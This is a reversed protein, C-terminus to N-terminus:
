IQDLLKALEERADDIKEKREKRWSLIRSVESSLEQIEREVSDSAPGGRVKRSEVSRDPDLVRSLEEETIKLPRGTVEMAVEEVKRKLDSTDNWRTGEKVVTAVVSHATRFPLGGRTVLLDALDTAWLGGERAARRLAEENIKASSIAGRTVSIMAKVTDLGRWLHVTAEQLDRNYSLPLSKCISMAAVLSSLVSSARARVLEAVDPNRKQPMISSTSSFADGLSLFGFEHTSWLVIEEAIRSLSIAVSSLCFLAEVLFDRSSVADMSNRFAESFGLLRATMEPRIPLSTTAVAAAGLPCIDVRRYCDVLRLIDRLIIEAHALLHHALTTPQARQLHTYAPIVTSRHKDSLDLLLSELECLRGTIDLIDERLVIRLCTAVEDNRSRGTHIRGGIEEGLRSILESEILLHIDEYGESFLEDLKSSIQDLEKVIKKAHGRSILGQKFLMFVHVKDVWIDASGMRRDQELSSLFVSAAKDQPLEFRGRRIIDNGREGM